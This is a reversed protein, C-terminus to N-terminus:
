SEFRRNHCVGSLPSHHVTLRTGRLTSLSHLRKAHRLPITSSLSEVGLGGDEIRAHIYSTATDNPLHVSQKVMKRILIDAKSLVSVSVFGVQGLYQVKPLVFCRLIHMQQIPTLPAAQVETLMRRTIQLLPQQAVGHHNFRIGLYTFEDVKSIPAIPRGAIGYGKLVVCLTKDKGNPILTLGRSKQANITLGSKGLAASLQNLKRQMGAATEAFIMMDDAFLLSDIRGGGILTGHNSSDYCYTPYSVLPAPAWYMSAVRTITAHSVSDFARFVDVACMTLKRRAMRTDRLIVNVSTVGDFCGDRRLFALQSNLSSLHDSWRQCLISHLRRLAVSTISIPRYDEPTQPDECKPIFIIRALNLHEPVAELALM